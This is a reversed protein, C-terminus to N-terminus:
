PSTPQCWFSLDNGYEDQWKFKSADTDCCTDVPPKIVGRPSVYFTCHFCYAGASKKEKSCSALLLIILLKKM